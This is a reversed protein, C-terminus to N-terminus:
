AKPEEGTPQDTHPKWDDSVRRDETKARDLAKLIGLEKKISDDSRFELDPLTRSSVIDGLERRIHRDADNLGHVVLTQKEAPLVSISVIARSLDGTLQVGTITILGAIRPDQFNRRAFIERLGREISSTLQEVKHSM